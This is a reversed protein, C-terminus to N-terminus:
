FLGVFMPNQELLPNQVLHHQCCALLEAITGLQDLAFTTAIDKLDDKHKYSALPAYFVKLVTNQAHQLERACEATDKKAQKAAEQAEKAIREVEGMRFAAEAQ